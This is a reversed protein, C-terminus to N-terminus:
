ADDAPDGSASLALARQYITRRPLGTALALAAAARKAGTDPLLAALAADLDRDMSKAAQANPPPGVLLVAEGKPAPEAALARALTDLTGFRFEEHIKTMERAIVAERPGLGAALDALTRAMRRPSEFLVLTADIGALREIESQRAGAKAPLFGAFLFRDTPLGAAMLAALPAAPGPVPVVPIGSDRCARVLRYGPDSILPTGADSLLAVRAGSQLKAILRPLAAAANHEHYAALPTIVGYHTLLKRAVRTDECAILSVTNLVDLARHTIDGLHGIPGAVVFLGRDEGQSARTLNEPALNEPVANPM